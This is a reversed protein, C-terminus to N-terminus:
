ALTYEGTKVTTSAPAAGPEYGNLKMDISEVEVPPQPTPPIVWTFLATAAAIGLIYAVKERKRM